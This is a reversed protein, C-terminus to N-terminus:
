PRRGEELQIMRQVVDVELRDLALRAAEEREERAEFTEAVVRRMTGLGAGPIATPTSVLVDAGSKVLTGGDVAVFVETGDSGEYGLLGPRLVAVTDIHRELMTFAGDVAEAGVRRVEADVEVQTPTFVRLRVDGV